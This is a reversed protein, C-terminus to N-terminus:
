GMLAGRFPGLNMEFWKYGHLPARCLVEQCKLTCQDGQLSIMMTRPIKVHRTDELLAWLHWVKFVHTWGDGNFRSVHRM